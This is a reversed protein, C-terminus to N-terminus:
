NTSLTSRSRPKREAWLGKWADGLRSMFSPENELHRSLSDLAARCNLSHNVLETETRFYGGNCHICTYSKPPCKDCKGETNLKTGCMGCYVMRKRDAM